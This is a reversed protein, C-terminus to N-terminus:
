EGVFLVQEKTFKNRNNNHHLNDKFITDFVLILIVSNLMKFEMIIVFILESQDMMDQNKASNLVFNM